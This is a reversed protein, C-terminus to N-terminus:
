GPWLTEPIGDRQLLSVLDMTLAVSVHILFGSWISRTKMALTGLVVGAFIAAGTELGPKGFHIMCYPVVMAFIAHSGLAPKMAKLWWGRFFFELGFFQAAYLLEWCILDFWSRDALRYLPYKRAFGETYSVAIVCVFVVVYCIAYIWAHEMFGKTELGNERIRQGMARIVFCPILFYALVRWLAWYAMQFLRAYESRLMSSWLTPEPSDGHLWRLLEVFTRSNGWYELVTLCLGGVTLVILPAYDYGKGADHREQREAEAERDMQKWTDLFFRRPHLEALRAVWSTSPMVTKSRPTRSSGKKGKAVRKKRKRKAM